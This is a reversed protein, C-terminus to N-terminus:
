QINSIIHELPKLIAPLIFKLLKNSLGDEGFSTKPKIRQSFKIIDESNLLKFKFKNFTKTGLYSHVGKNSIPIERKLSVGIDAFFITSDM